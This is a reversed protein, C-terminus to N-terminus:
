SIRVANIFHFEHFSSCHDRLALSIAVKYWGDMVSFNRSIKRETDCPFTHSHTVPNNTNTNTSISNAIPKLTLTSTSTSTTTNINNVFSLNHNNWAYKWHNVYCCKPIVISKNCDVTMAFSMLHLQTIIQWEIEITKYMEIPSKYVVMTQFAFKVM